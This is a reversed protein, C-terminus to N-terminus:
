AVPVSRVCQDWPTRWGPRPPTLQCGDRQQTPTTDIAAATSSSSTSDLIPEAADVGPTTDVLLVLSRAATSSRDTKLRRWRCSEGLSQNSQKYGSSARLYVHRDGLDRRQKARSMTGDRPPWMQQQKAYLGLTVPRRRRRSSSPSSGTWEDYRSRSFAQVRRLPSSLATLHLGGQWVAGLVKGAKSRLEHAATAGKTTPSPRPLV